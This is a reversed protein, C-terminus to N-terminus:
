NERGVRKDYIPKGSDYIPKGSLPWHLRSVASQDTQLPQARISWPSHGLALQKIEEVPVAM